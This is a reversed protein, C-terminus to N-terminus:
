QGEWNQLFFDLGCLPCNQLKTKLMVLENQNRHSLDAAEDLANDGAIDLDMVM